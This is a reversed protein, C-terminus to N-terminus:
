LIVVILKGIPHNIHPHHVTTRTNLIIEQNNMAILNDFKANYVNNPQHQVDPLLDLNVIVHGNTQTNVDYRLEVIRNPLHIVFKGQKLHITIDYGYSYNERKIKLVHELKENLNNLKYVVEQRKGNVTLDGEVKADLTLGSFRIRADMKGIKQEKSKILTNMVLQESEQRWESVMTYPSTKQSDFDVNLQVKNNSKTLKSKLDAVKREQSDKAQFEIKIENQNVTEVTAQGKLNKTNFQANAQIQFPATIRVNAQALKQGNKEVQGEIKLEQGNILRIHKEIKLNKTHVKATIQKESPSNETSFQVLQNTKLNQYEVKANWQKRESLDIKMSSRTKLFNLKANVQRQNVRVQADLDVLQKSNQQAKIQANILDSRITYHGTSKIGMKKNNYNLEFQNNYENTKFVFEHQKFEFSGEVDRRNVMKAEMKHWQKGQQVTQSSLRRANVDLETVHKFQDEQNELEILFSQNVKGEIKLNKNDIEGSAVIQKTSPNIRFDVNAIQKSNRHTKSKIKLENEQKLFTVTTEHQISHKKSDFSLKAQIPSHAFDLESRIKMNQGDIKLFAEGNRHLKLEAAHQKGNRSGDIKINLMTKRQLHGLVNLKADHKKDVIELTYKHDKQSEKEWRSNVEFRNCRSQVIVHKQQDKLNIKLKMEKEQQQHAIKADIKKWSDVDLDVNLIQKGNRSTSSSIRAVKNRMDVIEVKSTHKLGNENTFEFEAGSNKRYHAEVTFRKTETKTHSDNNMSLKTNHKVVNRNDKSHELVIMLTSEDKRLESKHQVNHKKDNIELRIHKQQGIPQMSFEVNAHQNNFQVRSEEEWSLKGSLTSIQKQDNLHKFQVKGSKRLFQLELEERVDKKNNEVVVNFKKDGSAQGSLKWDFVSAKLSSPLQSSSDIELDFDGVVQQNNQTKSKVTYKNSQKEIAFQQRIPRSSFYDSNIEVNAWQQGNPQHQIKMDGVKEIQIKAEAKQNKLYDVQVDAIQRNQRTTKSDLHFQQKGNFNLKTQHTFQNDKKGNVLVNIQKNQQSLDGELKIQFIPSDALLQSQGNKNLSIKVDSVVANNKRLSHKLEFQNANLKLGSKHKITIQRSPIKAELELEHNLRPVQLSHEKLKYLYNFEIHQGKRLQVMTHGHYQNKEQEDINHQIKFENNEIQIKAELEMKLPSQQSLQYVMDGKYQKNTNVDRATLQVNYKQQTRQWNTKAQVEYNVSLPKIEVKLLNEFLSSIKASVKNMKLQQLIHVQRTKQGNENNWFATLESEIEQELRHAFNWSVAVNEFDTNPVSLEFDANYKRTQDNSLDKMAMKWKYTIPAQNNLQHIVLFDSLAGNSSKDLNSVFRISSGTFWFAHLDTALKFNESADIKGSKIASFKILPKDTVSNKLEVSFNDKKGNQVLAVKGVYEIRKMGPITLKVTPRIQYEGNENIREGGIQAEFRQNDM